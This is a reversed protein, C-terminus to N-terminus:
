SWPRPNGNSQPLLPVLTGQNWGLVKQDLQLSIMSQSLRSTQVGVIRNCRSRWDIQDLQRRDVLSARPLDSVVVEFLFDLFDFMKWQGVFPIGATSQPCARWDEAGSYFSLIFM